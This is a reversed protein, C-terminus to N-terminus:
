NEIHPVAVQPRKPKKIPPKNKPEVPKDASPPPTKVPESLIVVQVESSADLSIQVQKPLHGALELRLLLLEPSSDAEQSLPTQGLPVGDVIRVVSAGEPRSLLRWRVRKKPVADQTPLPVKKRLVVFATVGGGVALLGAVLGFVLLSRRSTEIVGTTGPTTNGAVTKADPHASRGSQVVAM